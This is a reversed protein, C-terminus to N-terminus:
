VKRNNKVVYPLEEINKIKLEAAASVIKLVKHNHLQNKVNKYDM